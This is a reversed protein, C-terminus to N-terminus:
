RSAVALDIRKSYTEPTSNDPCKSDRIKEYVSRRGVAQNHNQNMTPVEQPRVDYARARGAGIHEVPDPHFDYAGTLIM